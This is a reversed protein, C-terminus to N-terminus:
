RVWPKLRSTQSSRRRQVTFHTPFLKNQKDLNHTTIVLIVLIIITIPIRYIMTSIKQDAFQLKITNSTRKHNNIKARVDQSPRLEKRKKINKHPLSLGM